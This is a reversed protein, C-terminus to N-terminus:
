KFYSPVHSVGEPVPLVVEVESVVPWRVFALPAFAIIFEAISSPTVVGAVIVDVSGITAGDKEV